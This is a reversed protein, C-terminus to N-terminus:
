PYVLFLYVQVISKIWCKGSMKPLAMRQKRRISLFIVSQDRSVPSWGLDTRKRCVGRVPIRCRVLSGGATEHHTPSLSDIDEDFWKTCMPSSHSFRQGISVPLAQVNQESKCQSIEFYFRVLTINFQCPIFRYAVTAPRSAAILSRSVVFGFSLLEFGDLKSM